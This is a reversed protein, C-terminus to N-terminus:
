TSPIMAAALDDQGTESVTIGADVVVDAVPASSPASSPAAVQVNVALTSSASGPQPNEVLVQVNGVQSQTSTGTAVLETASSFETQLAEGAFLVQAGKAFGAGSVRLTFAGVHVTTPSVSTVVPIPNYLALAATASISPDTASTATVKVANPSPVTAPATYLGTADITGVAANGGPVGNVSWSLGLNTEGVSSVTASFQQADGARTRATAPTVVVSPSQM